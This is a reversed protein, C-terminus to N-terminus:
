DHPRQAKEVLAELLTRPCYVYQCGERQARALLHQIEALLKHDDIPPLTKTM